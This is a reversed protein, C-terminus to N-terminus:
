TYRHILFLCVPAILSGYIIRVNLTLPCDVVHVFRNEYRRISLLSILSNVSLTWPAAFFSLFCTFYFIQPFHLGAIHNSRDGLVIGGNWVLFAGFLGIALLFTVIHPILM